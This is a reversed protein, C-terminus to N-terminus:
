PGIVLVAKILCEHKHLLPIKLQQAIGKPWLLWKTGDWLRICDSIVIEWMTFPGDSIMNLEDRNGDNPKLRKQINLAHFVVHLYAQM